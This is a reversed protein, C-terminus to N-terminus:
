LWATTLCLSCAYRALPIDFWQSLMEMMWRCQDSTKITVMDLSIPTFKLRVSEQFLELTQGHLLDPRGNLSRVCSLLTGYFSNNRTLMSTCATFLREYTTKVWTWARPLWSVWCLTLVMDARRHIDGHPEAKGKCFKFSRTSPPSLLKRVSSAQRTSYSRPQLCESDISSLSDCITGYLCNLSFWLHSPM